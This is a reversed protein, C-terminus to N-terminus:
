RPNLTGSLADRLVSGINLSRMADLSNSTANITTVTRIAQDNLSNQIVTAPFSALNGADGRLVSSQGNQVLNALRDMAGMGGTGALAAHQTPTGLGAVMLATTTVLAGNIYVAREIGFSVLLGAGFDFGGRMAALAQDSVAPWPAPAATVLAATVLASTEDLSPEQTAANCFPVMSACLWVALCGQRLLNKAGSQELSIM